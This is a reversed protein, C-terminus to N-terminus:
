RFVLLQYCQIDMSVPDDHSCRQQNVRERCLCLFLILSTNTIELRLFFRFPFISSTKEREEPM